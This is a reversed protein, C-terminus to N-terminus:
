PAKRRLFFQIRGEGPEAGLGVLPPVGGLIHKPGQQVRRLKDEIVSARMLGTWVLQAPIRRRSKRWSPRPPASPSPKQSKSRRRAFAASAPTAPRATRGPLLTFQM